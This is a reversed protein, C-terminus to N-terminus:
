NVSKIAIIHWTPASNAVVFVNNVCHGPRNTIVLLMSGDASVSISGSARVSGDAEFSLLALPQRGDFLAFNRTRAGRPPSVAHFSLRRPTIFPMGDVVTITAVIPPNTCLPLSRGASAATAVTASQIALIIVLHRAAILVIRRAARLRDDFTM